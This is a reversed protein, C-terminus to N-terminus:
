EETCAALCMGTGGDTATCFGSACQGANKCAAGTGLLTACKGATGTTVDCYTGPACFIVDQGAAAGCDGGVGPDPKCTKTTPDCYTFPACVGAGDSCAGGQAVVAVCVKTGLDCALGDACSTLVKTSTNYGCAGGASAPGTPAPIATCKGTCEYGSVCVDGLGCTAGAAIDTTCTGSCPSAATVKCYSGTACDIGSQCTSGVAVAGSLAASCAMPVATSSTCTLSPYASICSAASSEDFTVRNGSV